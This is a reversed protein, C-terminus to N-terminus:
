LSTRPEIEQGRAEPCGDRLKTWSTNNLVRDCRALFAAATGPRICATAGEAVRKGNAVCFCDPQAAAASVTLFGLVFAFVCKM